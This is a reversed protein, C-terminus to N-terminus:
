EEVRVFSYESKGKARVVRLAARLPDLKTREYYAAALMTLEVPQKDYFVDILNCYMEIDSAPDGTQQVIWADLRRVQVLLWRLVTTRMDTNYWLM